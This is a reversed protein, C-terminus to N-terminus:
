NVSTVVKKVIRAIAMGVTMLVCVNLVDAVANM